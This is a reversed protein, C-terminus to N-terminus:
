HSRLQSLPTPQFHLDREIGIGLKGRYEQLESLSFYGLEEEFGQTLGFFTDEGDFETVYWTWSGCPDFFKVHAIADPEKEQAYLKPLQERIEPTLLEMTLLQFVVNSGKLAM